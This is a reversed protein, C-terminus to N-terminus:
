AEDAGAVNVLAGDDADGAVAGPGGGCAVRYLVKGRQAGMVSDRLYLPHAPIFSRMASFFSSFHQRCVKGRVYILASSIFFM